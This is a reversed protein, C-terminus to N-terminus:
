SYILDDFLAISNLIHCKKFLAISFSKKYISKKITIM